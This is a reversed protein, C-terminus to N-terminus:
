SDTALWAFAARDHDDLGMAAMALVTRMQRADGGTATPIGLAFLPDMEVIHWIGPQPFLPLPMQQRHQSLCHLTLFDMPQHLRTICAITLPKDGVHLLSLHGCSILTQRRIAGLIHHTRRDRQPADVAIIAVADGLM